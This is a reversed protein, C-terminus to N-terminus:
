YTQPPARLQLPKAGRWILWPEVTFFSFDGEILAPPEFVVRLDRTGAAVEVTAAAANEVLQAGFGRLVVEVNLTGAAEPPVLSLRIGNVQGKPSQVTGLNLPRARVRHVDPARLVMFDTNVITTRDRDFAKDRNYDTASHGCERWDPNAALFDCGAFFPGPQAINDILIFGGPAIARAACSIDFMAYEYDHDGDVLVLAPHVDRNTMERYFAMSNTSHLQVHRALAHPWLKLALALYEGMFADVAHVSGFGNAHLARAIAEATGGKYSGIEFVHHPRLNRILCYLLAQANASILSRAAAPNDAFYDCAAAFEHSSLVENVPDASTVVDVVPAAINSIPKMSLSDTGNELRHRLKACAVAGAQAARQVFHACRSALRQASYIAGASIPMRWM